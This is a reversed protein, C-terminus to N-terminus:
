NGDHNLGIVKALNYRPSNHVVTNSRKGQYPSSAPDTSRQVGSLQMASEVVLHKQGFVM